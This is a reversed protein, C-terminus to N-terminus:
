NLSSDKQVRLELKRTTKIGDVTASVTVIYTNGGKLNKIVPTVVVNGAASATGVPMNLSTVATDNGNIYIEAAPSSLVVAGVFTFAYVPEESACIDIPSEKGFVKSSM